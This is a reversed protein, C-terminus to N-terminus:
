KDIAWHMGPCNIEQRPPLNGLALQDAPALAFYLQDRPSSMMSIEIYAGVAVLWTEGNRESARQLSKVQDQALM